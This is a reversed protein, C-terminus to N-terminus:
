EGGQLLKDVTTDLYDAVAKANDVTPSRGDKWKGITGNGLGCNKEVSSITEGRKKAIKRINDVIM